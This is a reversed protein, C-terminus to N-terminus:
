GLNFADFITTFFIFISIHPEGDKGTAVDPKKDEVMKDDADDATGNADASTPGLTTSEEKIVETTPPVDDTKVEGNTVPADTTPKNSPLTTNEKPPIVDSMSVGNKVAEGDRHTGLVQQWRDVLAKARERFRFTADAGVPLKDDTLITIHRM